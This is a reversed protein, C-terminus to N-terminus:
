FDLINLTGEPVFVTQPTASPDHYFHLHKLSMSRFGIEWFGSKPVPQYLSDARPRDSENTRDMRGYAQTRPGDLDVPDM